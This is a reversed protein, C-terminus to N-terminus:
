KPIGKRTRVMEVARWLIIGFAVVNAVLGGLDSLKNQASLWPRHWVSALVVVTIGLTAPLWEWWVFGDGRQKLAWLEYNWFRKSGAIRKIAPRMDQEIYAIINYNERQWEYWFVVALQVVLASGWELLRKHPSASWINSLLTLFIALVAWLSSQYTILNSIKSELAQYEAIQLQIPTEEANDPEKMLALTYM